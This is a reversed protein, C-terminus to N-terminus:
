FRSLCGQLPLIQQIQKPAVPALGPKSVVELSSLLTLSEIRQLIGHSGANLGGFEFSLVKSHEPRASSEGTGTKFDCGPKRFVFRGHCRDPFCTKETRGIQM